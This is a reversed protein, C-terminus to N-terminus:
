YDIENEILSIEEENLDYYRYLADNIEALQTTIDGNEDESKIRLCESVLASITEKIETENPVFLQSVLNALAIIPYSVVVLLLTWLLTTFKVTKFGFSKLFSDKGSLAYTIVPLSAFIYSTAVKLIIDNNIFDIHYIVLPAIIAFYTMVVVFVALLKLGEIFKEKFEM